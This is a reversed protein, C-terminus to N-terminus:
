IPQASSLAKHITERVVKKHREKKNGFIYYSETQNLLKSTSIYIFIQVISGKQRRKPYWSM